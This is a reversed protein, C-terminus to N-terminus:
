EAGLMSRLVAAAKVCSAVSGTQGMSCWNAAVNLAAREEETFRPASLAAEITAAFEECCSYDPGGDRRIRRLELAVARLAETNVSPEGNQPRLTYRGLAQMEALEVPDIAGPSPGYARELLMEALRRKSEIM